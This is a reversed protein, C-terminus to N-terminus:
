RPRELSGVSAAFGAGGYLIALNRRLTASNGERPNMRYVM